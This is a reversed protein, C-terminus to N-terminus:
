TPMALTHHSPLGHLHTEGVFTADHYQGNHLVCQLDLSELVRMWDRGAGASGCCQPPKYRTFSYQRSATSPSPLSILFCMSCSLISAHCYLVTPTDSPMVM